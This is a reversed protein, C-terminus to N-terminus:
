AAVPGPDDHDHANVFRELWGDPMISLPDSLVPLTHCPHTCRARIDDGDHVTTLHPHTATV